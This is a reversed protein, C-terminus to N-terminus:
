IAHIGKHFRAELATAADSPPNPVLLRTKKSALNLVNIGDPANYVMDKGDPTYANVNFYFGSSSPENSLRWVRHGTDKDGWTTPLNQARVFPSVFSLLALSSAVARFFTPM